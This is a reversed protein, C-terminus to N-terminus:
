KAFNALRGLRRALLNLAFKIARQQNGLTGQRDSYLSTFMTCAAHKYVINNHDFVAFIALTGTSNYLSPPDNRAAAGDTWCEANGGEYGTMVYTGDGTSLGVTTYAGSHSFRRAWNTNGLVRQSRGAGREDNGFYLFEPVGTPWNDSHIVMTHDIDDTVTQQSDLYKTSGDGVLGGTETYDGEVFNYNIPAAGKLPVLASALSDGAYVLAQDLGDWIGMRRLLGEFEAVAQDATRREPSAVASWSTDANAAWAAADPTGVNFEFTDSFWDPFTALKALVLDGSVQAGISNLHINDDKYNTGIAGYIDVYRSGYTAALNARLTAANDLRTQSWTINTLPSLVLYRDHGLEAVMSAINAEVTAPPIDQNIDNSGAQILTVWNLYQDNDADQVRGLIQGSNQGGVGQNIVTVGPMMVQVTQPLSISSDQGQSMLSDGWGCIAQRPHNAPRFGALSGVANIAGEITAREGASWGGDRALALSVKGPTLTLATQNTGATWSITPASDDHDWEAVLLDYSASLPGGLLADIDLTLTQSSRAGDTWNRVSTGQVMFPMSLVTRGSSGGAYGIGIGISHSTATATFTYYIWGTYGNALAGFKGIAAGDVSLLQHAWESEYEEVYCGIVYDQGISLGAVTQTIVPQQFGSVQEIAQKGAFEGSRIFRRGNNDFSGGWTWSAPTAEGLADNFDPNALLNTAADDCSTRLGLLTSDQVLQGSAIEDLTFPNTTAAARSDADVGATGLDISDKLARRLASAGGIWRQRLLLSVM